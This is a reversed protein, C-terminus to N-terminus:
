GTRSRYPGRVYHKAREPKEVTAYYARRKDPNNRKYEAVAAAKCPKCHGQYTGAGRRHYESLPKWEGCKSCRRQEIGDAIRHPARERAHEDLHQAEPICELNEIRNDTKDGNVHHVHYGDHIPGREREWVWRAEPMKHIKRSGPERWQRYWRGQKAHWLRGASERGAM